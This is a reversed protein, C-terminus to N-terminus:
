NSPFAALKPSMKLSNLHKRDRIVIGQVMVIYHRRVNRSDIRERYVFYEVRDFAKGNDNFDSKFYM